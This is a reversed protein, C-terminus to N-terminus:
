LSSDFQELQLNGDSDLVAYSFHNIFDGLIVVRSRTALALDLMIHRHGFVYYDVHQKCENAKAYSVLLENHEGEYKNEYRLHKKRNNASWWYGFRLGIASPICAFLKQCFNSRFISRLLAFKKDVVYAEDGHSLYFRKGNIEMLEPKKHVKMGIEQELYGFTWIDHNGIFFHLEVGSDALEAVKGLFRVYGRPVVMKYEFWFDFMDGLFYIASAKHKISDLFQVLKRELDLANEVIRSGLHADSLFYVHKEQVLKESNGITENHSM